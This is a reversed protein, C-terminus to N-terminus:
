HRPASNGASDRLVRGLGDALQVKPEYKLLSRAASIDFANDNEFFALTRRSIPPNVKLLSGLVEAAWGSSYGLWRPIRLRPPPVRVAQAFTAVMDRVSMWCPGAVNFTKGAVTSDAMAALWLAELFDGIFV